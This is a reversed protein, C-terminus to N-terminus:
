TSESKKNLTVQPEATRRSWKYLGLALALAGVGALAFWLHWRTPQQFSIGVPEPLGFATLSFEVEPVAEQEFYDFVTLAEEERSSETGVETYKV